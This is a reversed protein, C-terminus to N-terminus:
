EQDAQPAQARAPPRMHEPLAAILSARVAAILEDRTAYAKPDIPPLMQVRATGPTIAWSGKRMMHETGSIAVPIIPAGTREALFFPGKKFPQLRGDKSRTGEAFVLMHLGSNLAEAAAKVSRVAAERSNSREVPVFRGMRMAKGLLPIKMLEQKLLVSTMPPIESIIIPPDLNSVHNALFICSVGPPVNERGTVVVKIGAARVGLPVIGLIVVRYLLRVDNILLSYPIGVVGALTGLVVYVTVMKLAAFM